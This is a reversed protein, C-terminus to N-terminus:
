SGTQFKEVEVRTQDALRSLDIITATIEEAASANAQAISRLTNANNDLERISASQEEMAAAIRELTQETEGAAGSIQDMEQNVNQATEVAKESHSVAESVLLIIEETQTAASEALKRVEEAVVAFGKGHEGARAAEIAANLSLLNTQNAIKGIIDTIKNIKESNTAIQKVIQVMNTMKEQGNRAVHATMKANHNAADLSTTVEVIADKTQNLAGAIQYVTNLQTQSSDSVQSIALSTQQSASAVQRADEVLHKMTSALVDLSENMNQKLELLEGAAKQTVRLTLNGSAMERMVHNIDKLIAQMSSLAQNVAYRFEGQVSEDVRIDFHGETMAHMVNTLVAMTHALKVVAYNINEGLTKMEGYTQSIDVKQSFDGQAIATTVANVAGLNSELIGNLQNIDKMLTGFEDHSKIQFRHEFTGTQAMKNILLRITDLPQHIVRKLLYLFSFILVCLSILGILIAMYIIHNVESTINELPITVGLSWPTKSLGIPVSVFVRQFGTAEDVRVFMEGRQIRAGFEEAFPRAKPNDRLHKGVYNPDNYTAFTGNNSILFVYGTEYPKITNLYKELDSVAIEIGVVGIFQGDKKIPVALSTVLIQQENITTVYPDIIQEIGAQKTRQYFPQQEFHRIKSQVITGNKNVFYTTNDEPLQHIQKLFSPEWIVWTSLFTKNQLLINKLIAEYTNMETNQNQQLGEFTQSLTRATDMGVEIYAKVENGYRYAMQSGTEIGNQKVFQIDRVAIVSITLGLNFISLLIVFLTLKTKISM